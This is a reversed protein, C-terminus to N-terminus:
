KKKKDKLSQSNTGKLSCKLKPFVFFTFLASHSSYPTHILVHITKQGSIASGTACQTSPCPGQTSDLWKGV